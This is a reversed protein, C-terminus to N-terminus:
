SIEVICNESSITSIRMDDDCEDYYDEFNVDFKPGIEIHHVQSCGWKAAKRCLMDISVMFEGRPLCQPLDVIDDELCSKLLSLIKKSADIKLTFVTTPNKSFDKKESVDNGFVFIESDCEWIEKFARNTSNAIIMECLIILLKIQEHPEAASKPSSLVGVWPGRLELVFRWHNPLIFTSGLLRVNKFKKLLRMLTICYLLRSLQSNPLGCKDNALTYFHKLFLKIKGPEPSFKNINGIIKLIKGCFISGFGYSVYPWTAEKMGMLAAHELGSCNKQSCNFIATEFDHLLLSDCVNQLRKCTKRLRPIHWYPIYRIIHHLIENPLFCIYCNKNKNGKSAMKRIKIPPKNETLDQRVRKKSM